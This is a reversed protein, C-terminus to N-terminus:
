GEEKDGPRTYDLPKTYRLMLVATVIIVAGSVATVIRGSLTGVLAAFWDRNILYLLPVNFLVIAAMSLYERRCAEIRTRLESNVLRIETLRGVTPVLTDSNSFDEQCAILIDCWERFFTNDISGRLSMLCGSVDSSIMTARTCFAAFSGRVPSRLNGLNQRVAEVIDGTRLYASTIVSLATELEAAVRRDHNEVAGEAAAFPAALGATALVPILFPNKLLVAGACGLIALVASCACVLGFSGGTATVAERFHILKERLRPRRRRLRLELVRDRLGPEKALISSIDKGIRGPGLDLLVATGASFLLFSVFCIFVTM